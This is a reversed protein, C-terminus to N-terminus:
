ENEGERRETQKPLALLDPDPVPHASSTHLSNFNFGTARKGLIYLSAIM